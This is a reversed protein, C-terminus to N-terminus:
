SGRERPCSYCANSWPHFSSVAFRAMLVIVLLSLIQLLATDGQDERVYRPELVASRRVGLSRKPVLVRVKIQEPLHSARVQMELRSRIPASWALRKKKETTASSLRMERVMTMSITAHTGLGPSCSRLRLRLCVHVLSPHHHGGHRTQM